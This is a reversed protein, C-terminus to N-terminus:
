KRGFEVVCKDGDCFKDTVEHSSGSLDLPTILAKLAEYEAATIEIYPAQEYGHDDLPLLSIAKLQDEYVELCRSIHEAEESKFSVTCSVQNDAWHKQMAAADAFQEWISADRKGKAFNREKVPFSVVSTDDEQVAPEVPYGAQRAAEVLPSTNKVRVNRIYHESHPYHIGPTAGALLSVTGSPKVSTTKISTQVCLWEAYLTDLDQIYDYGKECWRLFERRGLKTKAQQIGSMSCGIRKNRMMVANTRPDHTTVLTVTKAYLYAAKLTRQYDEFSDHHAPFTEVLCCLERDELSQEVCPNAGKARRDKWDPTGNMRSYAQVNEMWIIGPEGNKAILGAVEDYDMGVHGWISNNSAWRRDLLAKKDQKLAIFDKDTAEGFMIEATRRIGGADVAKGIYNFVDVIQPSTIRYPTTGKGSFSTQFIPGGVEDADWASFGASAGEPLLVRTINEILEILPRPGSSTGGFTKLPAGRKRVDKFDIIIPFSGKGAFSNLVTRIVDVWGERSDEVVFPADTVRPRGIKVKGAGRTDGGVGVGLMSMDMLFCFPDAFDININETSAFACNNLAAGGREYVVDTGMMWLGRGPPLFKFEWMRRFMEQASKQAKPEQWPLRDRRCHIKQLNYVGEVVRACTQWWEETPHGCVTPDACDCTPRAYTRKYTFYGLGDFGWDPQEGEYESLFSSSLTFVRVKRDVPAQDFIVNTGEDSLHRREQTSPYRLLDKEPQHSM